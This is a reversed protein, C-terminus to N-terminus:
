SASSRSAMRGGGWGDRGALVASSGKICIGAGPCAWDQGPLLFALCKRHPRQATAFWSVSAARTGGEKGATERRRSGLSQRGMTVMLDNM